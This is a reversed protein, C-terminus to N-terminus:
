IILVSKLQLVSRGEGPPGSFYPNPILLPHLDKKVTIGSSVSFLNLQDPIFKLSYSIFPNESKQAIIKTDDECCGNNEEEDQEGCCADAKFLTSVSELEGCCYHYYVPIGTNNLIYIAVCFAFLYKSFLKM